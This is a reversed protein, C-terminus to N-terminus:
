ARKRPSTRGPQEVTGRASATMASIHLDEVAIVDFGRALATSTQEVRDKRQDAEKARLRAVAARLKARRNSGTKARGLKRALLALRRAQGPTLGHVSLLEGTSLAASVAVGRDVGVTRGNGPAPIPDPVHAFAVHWRGARDRTARYSKVGDPVPRSWRFRVRGVKPVKVEGVKRSLRRVDDAKVAVIRFGEHRGAKRWTPRRHTGGFFNSMAQSFDRLAQEQAPSPQLRYRTM